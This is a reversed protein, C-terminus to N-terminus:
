QKSRGEETEGMHECEGKWGALLHSFPREGECVQAEAVDERIQSHMRKEEEQSIETKRPITAHTHKRGLVNGKPARWHQQSGGGKGLM